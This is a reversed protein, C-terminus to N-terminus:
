THTSFFHARPSFVLHHAGEDLKRVGLAEQLRGGSPHYASTHLHERSERKGEGSLKVCDDQWSGQKELTETFSDRNKQM